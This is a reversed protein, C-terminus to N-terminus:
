NSQHKNLEFLDFPDFQHLLLSHKMLFTDFINKDLIFYIWKTKLVLYIRKNHLSKICLISEM